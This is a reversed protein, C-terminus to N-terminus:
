TALKNRQWNRCRLLGYKENLNINERIERPYERFDQQLNVNGNSVDKELQIWQKQTKCHRFNRGVYQGVQGCKACSSTKNLYSWRYLHIATRQLVHKHLPNDSHELSFEVVKQSCKPNSYNPVIKNLTKGVLTSVLYKSTASKWVRQCPFCVFKNRVDSAAYDEAVICQGRHPAEYCDFCVQNCHCETHAIQIICKKDKCM